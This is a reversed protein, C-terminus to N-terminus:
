KGMIGDVISNAKEKTFNGSIVAKGESIECRIQPASVARGNIIIVLQKGINKRTVKALIERGTKTFVLDIIHYGFESKRAKASAIHTNNLVAKPHVFVTRKSDDVTLKILNPAPDSEGIKFLIQRKDSDSHANLCTMLIAITITFSFIFRFM